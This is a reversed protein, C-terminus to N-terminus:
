ILPLKKKKKAGIAEAEAHQQVQMLDQNYRATYVEEIFGVLEAKLMTKPHQSLNPLLGTFTKYRKRLEVAAALPTGTSKPDEPAATSPTSSASKEWGAMKDRATQPSMKPAQPRLVKVTAAFNGSLDPKFEVQNAVLFAM